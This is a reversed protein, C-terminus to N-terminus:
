ATTTADATLTLPGSPEITLSVTEGDTGGDSGGVEGDVAITGVFENTLYASKDAPDEYDTVWIKMKAGVLAGSNLIQAIVANRPERCTVKVSREVGQLVSRATTIYRTIGDEVPGKVKAFTPKVAFKVESLLLQKVDGIVAGAALIAIEGKHFLLTKAKDPALSLKTNPITDAM